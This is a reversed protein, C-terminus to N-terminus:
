VNQVQWERLRWFEKRANRMINDIQLATTAKKVAVVVEPGYCLDEASTAAQRRYTEFESKLRRDELEKNTLWKGDKKKNPM